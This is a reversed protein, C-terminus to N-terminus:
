ESEAKFTVEISKGESNTRTRTLTMGLRLVETSRLAATEEATAVRALEPSKLFIPRFRTDRFARYYSDKASEYTMVRLEALAHLAQEV